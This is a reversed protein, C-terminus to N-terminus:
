KPEPEGAARWDDWITDIQKMATEYSSGTYIREDDRNRSYKAFLEYKISNDETNVTAILTAIKNGRIEHHLIKSFLM